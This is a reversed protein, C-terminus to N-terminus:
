FKDQSIQKTKGTKLNYCYYDNDYVTNYDNSATGKEILYSKTYYVHSKSIKDIYVYSAELNKVLTKKHKGSVDCCKINWTVISGDGDWDDGALEVYYIKNGIITRDWNWGWEKKTITTKKRNKCDYVYLSAKCPEDYDMCCILYQKYRQVVNADKVVMKRKKTCLDYQYVCSFDTVYYLCKGYYEKLDIIHRERVKCIEKKVRKAINVQYIVSQYKDVDYQIYEQYYMIKGNSLFRNDIDYGKKASVLVKQTGSKTRSYTIQNGEENLQFYYKGCKDDFYYGKYEAAAQVRVPKVFVGAFMFFIGLVFVNRFLGKKM